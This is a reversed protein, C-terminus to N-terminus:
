LKWFKRAANNLLPSPIGCTGLAPTTTSAFATPPAKKNKKREKEHPPTPSHIKRWIIILPTTTRYQIYKYNGGGGCPYLTQITDPTPIFHTHGSLEWSLHASKKKNYIHSKISIVIRTLQLTMNLLPLLFLRVIVSMCGYYYSNTTYLTVCM